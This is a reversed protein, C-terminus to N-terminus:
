TFHILYSLKGMKLWKEEVEVEKGNIKPFTFFIQSLTCVHAKIILMIDLNIFKFEKFHKKILTM